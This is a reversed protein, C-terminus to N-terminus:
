TIWNRRQVIIKSRGKGKGRLVGEKWTWRKWVGLGEFGRNQKNQEFINISIEKGCTTSEQSRRLSYFPKGPTYQCWSASTIVQKFRNAALLKQLKKKIKSLCTAHLDHMVKVVTWIQM